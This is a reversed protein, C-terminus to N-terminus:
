DYKESRSIGFVKIGKHYKALCRMIMKSTNSSAASLVVNEAKEQEIIDVMGLVSLPNVCCM